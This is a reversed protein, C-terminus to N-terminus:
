PASVTIHNFCKMFRDLSIEVVPGNTAHPNILRIKDATGHYDAVSYAHAPLIGRLRDAVNGSVVALRNQPDAAIESLMNTLRERTQADHSFTMRRGDSYPALIETPEKGDNYAKLAERTHSGENLLVYTAEGGKMSRAFATELLKIGPDGSVGTRKVDAIHMTVEETIMGPFRFTVRGDSEAHIMKIIRAPDHHMVAKLTALSTCNGFAGQEFESARIGKPFLTQLLAAKNPHLENLKGHRYYFANNFDAGLKVIDGDRLQRAATITAGNVETHTRETGLPTLIGDASLRAHNASVFMDTRWIDTPHTYESLGSAANLKRGIFVTRPVLGDGECRYNIPHAGFRVTEGKRVIRSVREGNVDRAAIKKGEVFTGWRSDSDTIRLSIGPRYPEIRAHERSVTFDNGPLSQRGILLARRSSGPLVTDARLTAAENRAHERQQEKIYGARQDLYERESEQSMPPPLHPSLMRENPRKFFHVMRDLV